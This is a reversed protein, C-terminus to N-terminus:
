TLSSPLTMASEQLLIDVGEPDEMGSGAKGRSQGEDLIDRGTEWNGYEWRADEEERNDREMGPAYKQYSGSVRASVRKAVRRDRRSLL